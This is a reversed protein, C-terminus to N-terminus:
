VFGEDFYLMEANMKKPRIKVIKKFQLDEFSNRSNEPLKGAINVFKEIVNPKLFSIFLLIGTPNLKM